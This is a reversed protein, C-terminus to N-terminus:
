NKGSDLNEYSIKYDLLEDVQKELEAIRDAQERLMNAADKLQEGGGYVDESWGDLKDALEYANM